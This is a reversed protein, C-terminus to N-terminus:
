QSKYTSMDLKLESLKSGRAHDIASKRPSQAVCCKLYDRSFSWGWTFSLHRSCAEDRSACYSEMQASIHHVNSSVIMNSGHQMSGLELGVQSQMIDIHVRDELRYICTCTHLCTLRTSKFYRWWSIALIATSTTGTSQNTAYISRAQPRSQAHQRTGHNTSSSTFCPRPLHLV